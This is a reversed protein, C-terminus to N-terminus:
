NGKGCLNLDRALYGYCVGFPLVYSGKSLRQAESGGSGLM